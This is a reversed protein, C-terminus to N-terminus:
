ASVNQESKKYLSIHIVSWSILGSCISSTNWYLYISSYVHIGLSIYMCHYFIILPSILSYMSLSHFVLNDFIPEFMSIWFLFRRQLSNDHVHFMCCLFSIFIWSRSASTLDQVLSWISCCYCCISVIFLYYKYVTGQKSFEEIFSVRISLSFFLRQLKSTYGLLTCCYNHSLM